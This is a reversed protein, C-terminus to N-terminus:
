SNLQQALVEDFKHQQRNLLDAHCEYLKGPHQM